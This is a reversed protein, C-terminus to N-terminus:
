QLSPFYVPYCFGEGVPFAGAAEATCAHTCTHTCTCGQTCVHPDMLSHADTHDTDQARTYLAHTRAGSRTHVHARVHGCAQEQGRCVCVFCLSTEASIDRSLFGQTTFASLKSGSFRVPAYKSYIRGRVQKAVM